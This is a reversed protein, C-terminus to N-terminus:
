EYDTGMYDVLENIKEEIAKDESSTFELSLDEYNLNLKAEQKSKKNSEDLVKKVVKKLKPIGAKLMGGMILALLEAALTVAITAGAGLSQTIRSEIKEIDEDLELERTLEELEEKTLDVSLSLMIGQAM